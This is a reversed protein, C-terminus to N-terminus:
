SGIVPLGASVEPPSGLSAHWHPLTNMSSATNQRWQPVLRGGAGAGGNAAMQGQPVAKISPLINQQMHPWLRMRSTALEDLDLAAAMALQSASAVSLESAGIDLAALELAGIDWAGADETTSPANEETCLPSEDGRHAATPEATGELTGHIADGEEGGAGPAEGTGSGLITISMTGPM